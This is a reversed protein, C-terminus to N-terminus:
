RRDDAPASCATSASTSSRSRCPTPASRRDLQYINTILDDETKYVFGARVGMTETVQRELWVSAEHSLPAKINPISGVARSRAGDLDRNASEEGAALPPRRQHRELQLDGVQQRTRTPTRGIGVGPNHWFLGYNAKLVTKGDGTLDFVM